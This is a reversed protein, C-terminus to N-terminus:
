IGGPLVTGLVDLILGGIPRGVLREHSPASGMWKYPHSESLSVQFPGFWSPQQLRGSLRSSRASSATGPLDHYPGTLQRVKPPGAVRNKASTCSRESQAM